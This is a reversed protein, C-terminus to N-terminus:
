LAIFYFFMGLIFTILWDVIKLNRREWVGLCYNFFPKQKYGFLLSYLSSLINSLLVVGGFSIVLGLYWKVHFLTIFSIILMIYPLLTFIILFINGLKYTRIPTDHWNESWHKYWSGISILFFLICLISLVMNIINKNNKKFTFQIVDKKFHNKIFCIVFM